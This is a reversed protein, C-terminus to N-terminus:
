QLKELFPSVTATMFHKDIEKICPIEEPTLRHVFDESLITIKAGTDILFEVEEDQVTTNLYLGDSEEPCGIELAKPKNSEISSWGTLEVM